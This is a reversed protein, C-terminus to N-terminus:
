LPITMSELDDPYCTLVEIGDSTVLVTDSHRFGGLDPSYLGPEVTFVMGPQIMTQDHRDLFPGEHYRLGISHGTHHRWLSEIGLRSYASRVDDDVKGCPIGPRIAERALRRLELLYGFLEGQRANPRGIFMTRELESDYGWIPARAESVVVDGVQFRIDGALSGPRSAQGGVQGRYTASAGHFYPSGGQYLPGIADLMARTAEMSARFSVDVESAGVRTYRQLLSHALNAWRVSERILAVEAESKVMMQREIFPSLHHVKENLLSSLSPGQYGLLWPYGDHDCGIIRGALRKEMLAALAHIPHPDGPYEEYTVVERVCAGALASEQELRPVFLNTEGEPTLILAIPRETPIYVFGCYYLVYTRDFLVAGALGERQLYAGLVMRRAYYERESICITSRRIM